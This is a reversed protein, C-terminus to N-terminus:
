GREALSDDLLGPPLEVDIRKTSVDINKVFEGVLPVLARGPGVILMDQSPYHEVAVVAGVAGLQVDHLECGVLDADLYEGDTLAVDARELMITAGTLAEGQTADDFGEFAVLPRGKHIRVTRIRLERLTGDALRARVLLGAVLADAGIRSADLKLEVRLGFVGVIRGANVETVATM